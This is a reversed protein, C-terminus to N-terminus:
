GAAKRALLEARRIQGEAVVQDHPILEGRAAADLGEQVMGRYWTDYGLVQDVAEVILAEIPAGKHLALIDLQAMQDESLEITVHQTM